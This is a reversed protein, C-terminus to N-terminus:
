EPNLGAGEKQATKTVNFKESHLRLGDMNMNDENLSRRRLSLRHSAWRAGPGGQPTEKM